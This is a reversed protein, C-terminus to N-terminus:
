CMLHYLGYVTSLGTTAICLLAIMCGNGGGSNRGGKYDSNLKQMEDWQQQNYIDSYGKEDM